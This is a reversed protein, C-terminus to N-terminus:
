PPPMPLPTPEFATPVPVSDNFLPYSWERVLPVQTLTSVNVTCTIAAAKCKCAATDPIVACNFLIGALPSISVSQSGSAAVPLDFEEEREFVALMTALSGNQVAPDSTLLGKNGSSTNLKSGGPLDSLHFEGWCTFNVGSSTVLEERENYFNLGASTFPNPQNSRVDLTLFILSSEDSSNPGEFPISGHVKGTVEKYESGDFDLRGDLNLDTPGLFPVWCSAQIAIASHARASNASGAIVEDGILGDFSIANGSSDTAWVILYGGSGEEEGSIDPCQPDPLDDTSFALTGNVTTKLNFDTERCIGSADGPCVWHGRLHVTGFPNGNEVPVASCDQDKPCVVSIEFRTRPVAGHDVTTVSGTHVSPFVLVSGPETTDALEGALAPAALGLALTLCFLFSCLKTM